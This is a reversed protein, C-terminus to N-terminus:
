YMILHRALEFDYAGNLLTKVFVAM